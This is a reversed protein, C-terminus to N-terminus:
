NNSRFVMSLQFHPIETDNTYRPFRSKRGVSKGDSDESYSYDEDSSDYNLDKEEGELQEEMNAILNVPVADTTDKGIWSKTDRMKKLKRAYRRLEVVQSDEGSDESHPMYEPDSDESNGSDATPAPAAFTTAQTIVCTDDPVLIHEVGESDAVNDPEATM